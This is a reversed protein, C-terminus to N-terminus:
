GHRKRGVIRCRQGAGATADAAARRLALADISHIKVTVAGNGAALEAENMGPKLQRLSVELAQSNTRVSQRIAALEEASKVMRLKEVVGGRPVFMQRKSSKSQLTELQGLTLHDPEM